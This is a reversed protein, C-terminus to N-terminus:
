GASGSHQMETTCLIYFFVFCFEVNVKQAPTLTKYPQGLLLWLLLTQAVAECVLFLSMVM